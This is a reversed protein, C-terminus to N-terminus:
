WKKTIKLYIVMMNGDDELFSWQPGSRPELCTSQLPLWASRHLSRWPISRSAALQPPHSESNKFTPLMHFLRSLNTSYRWIYDYTIMYIYNYIYTYIYIYVYLYIYIYMSPHISPHMSPHISLYISLYEIINIYSVYACIYLNRCTGLIVLFAWGLIMAIGLEGWETPKNCTRGRMKNLKHGM